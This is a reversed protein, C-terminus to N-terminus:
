RDKSFSRQGLRDKPFGDFRDKQCHAAREHFGVPKGPTVKVFDSYSRDASAFIDLAIGCWYVLDFM